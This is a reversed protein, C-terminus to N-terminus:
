RGGLVSKRFLPSGNRVGRRRRGRFHIPPSGSGGRLVFTAHPDPRLPAIFSFSQKGWMTRSEKRRSRLLGPKRSCPRLSATAYAPLPRAQLDDDGGVLFQSEVRG